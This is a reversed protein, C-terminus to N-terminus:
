FEKMRQQQIREDICHIFYSISCKGTVMFRVISTKLLGDKMQISRVESRESEIPWIQWLAPISHAGNALLMLWMIPHADRAACFNSGNAFPKSIMSQKYGSIKKGGPPHRLARQSDAHFAIYVYLITLYLVHTLYYSDVWMRLLFCSLRILQENRPLLISPHIPSEVDRPLVTIM